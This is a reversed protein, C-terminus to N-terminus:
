VELVSIDTQVSFKEMHGQEANMIQLRIYTSKLLSYKEHMM